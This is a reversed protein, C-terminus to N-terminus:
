IQFDFVNKSVRYNTHMGLVRTLGVSTFSVKQFYKSYSIDTFNHSCFNRTKFSIRNSMQLLVCNRTLFVEFFFLSFDDSM